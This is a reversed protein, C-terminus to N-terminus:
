KQFICSTMPIRTRLVIKKSYKLSLYYNKKKRIIRVDQGMKLSLGLRYRNFSQRKGHAESFAFCFLVGGFPVEWLVIYLLLFLLLLLYKMLNKRGATVLFVPLCMQLSATSIFLGFPNSIACLFSINAKICTQQTSYYFAKTYLWLIFILTLLCM